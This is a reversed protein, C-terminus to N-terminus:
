RGLSILSGDGRQEEGSNCRGGLLHAMGVASRSRAPARQSARFAPM